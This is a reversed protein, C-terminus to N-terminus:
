NDQVPHGISRVSRNKLSTLKQAADMGLGLNISPHGGKNDHRNFTLEKFRFM